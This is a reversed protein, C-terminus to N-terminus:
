HFAPSSQHDFQAPRHDREPQAHKNDPAVGAKGQKGAPEDILERDRAGLGIAGTHDELLLEAIAIRAVEEDDGRDGVRRIERQSRAQRLTEVPGCTSKAL